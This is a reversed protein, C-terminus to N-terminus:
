AGRAEPGHSSHATSRSAWFFDDVRGWEGLGPQGRKGSM